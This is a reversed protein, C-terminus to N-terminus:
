LIRELKELQRPPHYGEEANKKGEMSDKDKQRLNGRKEGEKERHLNTRPM